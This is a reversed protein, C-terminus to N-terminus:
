HEDKKITWSECRYMIVPFGKAKVICVETLLTIDRSKLICDLYTVSKKGILCNKGDPPWLKPVEAEADTM